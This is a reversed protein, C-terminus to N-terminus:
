IAARISQRATNIFSNLLRNPVEPSIEPTQTQKKQELRKRIQGLLIERNDDGALKQIYRKDLAALNEEFVQLSYGQNVGILEAVSNLAMLIFCTESENREKSRFFANTLGFFSKIKIYSQTM